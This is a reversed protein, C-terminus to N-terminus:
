LTGTLPSISKSLMDKLNADVGNAAQITAIMLEDTNINSFNIEYGANRAVEALFVRQTRGNGQRFPHLYNTVCYLDTLNEIFTEIDSNKFYNCRKLREFCAKALTEIEDYRAFRTGKKSINVTRTEGAWVYLDEFIFRHIAKYHEFDLESQIPEKQLMAIKALTIHSEVSELQKEDRIDLKNILCTTGEYCDDRISDLSYKM